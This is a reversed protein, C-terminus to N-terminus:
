WRTEPDRSRSLLTLMQTRPAICRSHPKERGGRGEGPWWGKGAGGCTGERGQVAAGAQWALRVGRGRGRGQM